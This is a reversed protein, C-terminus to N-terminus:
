RSSLQPPSMPSGTAPRASTLSGAPGAARALRAKPPMAAKAAAVEEPECGLLPLVDGLSAALEDRVMPNGALDCPDVWMIAETLDGDPDDPNPVVGEGRVPVSAESETTWVIGRYIGDGATWEGAVAGPPPVAGTEEGWERWAARLPSEGDELHGGPFEIKGGAPDEDDLARQLMLVRGTDAALVALGAVAVQGADKRVALRGADNLNHGRTRGVARFEFDRWEGSRRRAKSFRGFATLEKAVSAADSDEDDDLARVLDYSYIGTEATIGAAPAAEGEKAVPAGPAQVQPQPPPAPPMASPGFEQEALPAVKIPPSPLVGETGGFVTQPLPTGAVPLGTAQDIEGALAFLSALPIPGSRETFVYRPITTPDSTGYRMEGIYSASVAGMDVYIKDAQAQQV